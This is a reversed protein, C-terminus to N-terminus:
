TKCVTKSIRWDLFTGEGVVLQVMVVAVQVMVVAVSVCAETVCVMVVGVCLTIVVVCVMLVGTPEWTGVEVTVPVLLVNAVTGIRCRLKIPSCNDVKRLMFM